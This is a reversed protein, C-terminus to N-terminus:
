RLYPNNKANEIAIKVNSAGGPKTTNFHKGTQNYRKIIEDEWGRNNLYTVPNKRYQKDPQAEVYKPVHLAIAQKDKENLRDWKKYSDPKHVKKDYPNWFETDFRPM